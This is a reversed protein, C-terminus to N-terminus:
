GLDGLDGWAERVVHRRLVVVPRPHLLAAALTNQILCSCCARGLTFTTGDLPLVANDKRAVHYPDAEDAYRSCM